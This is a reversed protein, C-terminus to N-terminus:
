LYAVQYFDKYLKRYKESRYIRRIVGLESLRNGFKGILIGVCGVERM